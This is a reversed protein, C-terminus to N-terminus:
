SLPRQQASRPEARKEAIIQQILQVEKRKQEMHRHDHYKHLVVFENVSIVMLELLEDLSMKRLDDENM